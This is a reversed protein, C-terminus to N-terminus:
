RITDNEKQLQDLRSKLDEAAETETEYVKYKMSTDGVFTCTMFVTERHLLVHRYVTLRVGSQAKPAASWGFHVTLAQTEATPPYVGVAEPAKKVIPILAKDVLDSRLTKRFEESVKNDICLQTLSELIDNWSDNVSPSAM